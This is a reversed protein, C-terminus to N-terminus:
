RSAKVEVDARGRGDTTFSIVQRDDVFVAYACGRLREAPMLGNGNTKELYMRVGVEAELQVFGFPAAQRNDGEPGSRGWQRCAPGERM